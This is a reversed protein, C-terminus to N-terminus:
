ARKRVLLLGGGLAILGIASYLLWNPGEDEIGANPLATTRHTTTLHTVPHKPARPETPTTPPVPPTPTPTTVPTTPTPTPTPTTVECVKGDTWAYYKVETWPQTDTVTEEHTVADHHIIHTVADHHVVHTVADHHVVHTEAPHHIVKTKAPHHVVHTVEPSFYFWDRKGESNHSTYHLGVGVKSVWTVNDSGHPEKHTNPQWYDAPFVPTEDKGIGSNGKLSYHQAEQDVVTEDWAPKCVVTEDWAAKDVVTEDYAESDTITEDYAPEDVVTEDYAERDVVTETHTGAPHQITLVWSRTTDCESPTNYTSVEDEVAGEPVESPSAVVIPDSASGGPAASAPSVALGLLVLGLAVILAYIKKM